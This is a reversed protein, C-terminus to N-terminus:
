GPSRRMGKMVQCFNFLLPFRINRKKYCSGGGRGGSEVGRIEGGRFPLSGRTISALLLIHHARCFDATHSFAASRDRGRVSERCM